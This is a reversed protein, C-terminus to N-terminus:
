SRKTIVPRKGISKTIVPREGVTKNLRRKIAESRGEVKNYM